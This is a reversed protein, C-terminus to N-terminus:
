SVKGRLDALVNDAAQGLTKFEELETTVEALKKELVKIRREMRREKSVPIRGDGPPLKLVTINRHGPRRKLFNRRELGVVLRNIGSKSHLGLEDMMEQYSPGFGYQRQYNDIFVLVDRQRPTIM